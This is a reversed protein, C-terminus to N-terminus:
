PKKECLSVQRMSGHYEYTKGNAELVILVGHTIVQAYMMGPKPCGLSSDPWEIEQASKVVISDPTIGIRQALDARAQQVLLDMPSNPNM